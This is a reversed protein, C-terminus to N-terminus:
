GIAILAFCALGGLIALLQRGRADRAALMAGQVRPPLTPPPVWGADPIERM